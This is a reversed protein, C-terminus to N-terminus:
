KKKNKSDRRHLEYMWIPEGQDEEPLEEKQEQKWQRGQSGTREWGCCM